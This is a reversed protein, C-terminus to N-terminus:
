PSFVLSAEQNLEPGELYPATAPFLRLPREPTRQSMKALTKPEWRMKIQGRLEGLGQLIELSSIQVQRGSSFHRQQETELDRGVRQSGMSQLM